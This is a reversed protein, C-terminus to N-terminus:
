VCVCRLIKRVKAGKRKAWGTLKAYGEKDDPSKILSMEEPHRVNLEQCIEAVTFFTMVAFNVRVQVCSVFKCTCLNHTYIYAQSIHVLCSVVMVMPNLGKSSSKFPLRLVLPM